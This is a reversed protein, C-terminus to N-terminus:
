RCKINYGVVMDFNTCIKAKIDSQVIPNIGGIVKYILKHTSMVDCEVGFEVSM